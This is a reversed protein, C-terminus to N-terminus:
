FHANQRRSHSKVLLWNGETLSWVSDATVSVKFHVRFIERKPWTGDMWIIAFVPGCRNCTSLCNGGALLWDRAAREAVVSPYQDSIVTTSAAVGARTDRIVAQKDLGCHVYFEKANVTGVRHYDHMGEDMPIDPDLLYEEHRGDRWEAKCEGALDVEGTAGCARYHKGKGDMALVELNQGEPTM